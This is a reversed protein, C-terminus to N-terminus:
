DQSTPQNDIIDQHLTTLSQAEKYKIKTAHTQTLRRGVTLTQYAKEKKGHGSTQEMRGGNGRLVQTSRNGRCYSSSKKEIGTEAEELSPIVKGVCTEGGPKAKPM